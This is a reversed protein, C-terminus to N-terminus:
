FSERKTQPDSKDLDKLTHGRRRSEWGIGGSGYTNDNLAVSQEFGLYVNGTIPDEYSYLIGAFDGSVSDLTYTIGKITYQSEVVGTVPDRLFGDVVPPGQANTAPAWAGALFGAMLLYGAFMRRRQEEFRM